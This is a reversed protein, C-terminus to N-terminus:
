KADPLPLNVALLMELLPLAADYHVKIHRIDLPEPGYVYARVGRRYNYCHSMGKTIGIKLHHDTIAQLTNAATMLREASVKVIRGNYMRHDKGTDIDDGVYTIKETGTM